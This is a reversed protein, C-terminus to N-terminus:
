MLGRKFGKEVTKITSGRFSISNQNFYDGEKLVPCQKGGGREM